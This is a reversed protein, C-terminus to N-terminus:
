QIDGLLLNEFNSIYDDLNAWEDRTLTKNSESPGHKRYLFCPEKTWTGEELAAVRGLFGFDELIPMTEDWGGVNLALETEVIASSPHVPYMGVPFRSTKDDRITRRFKALEGRAIRSKTFFKWENPAEFGDKRDDFFDLAFGGGWRVHNDLINDLVQDVGRPLPIDDDDFQMIYNGSARALGANRAFAVNKTSPVVVEEYSFEAIQTQALREHEQESAVIIWEIPTSNMHQMYAVSHLWDYKTHDKLPTIVSLM